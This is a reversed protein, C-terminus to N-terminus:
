PCTEQQILERLVNLFREEITEPTFTPESSQFPEYCMHDPSELAHGLSALNYIRESYVKGCDPCERDLKLESGYSDTFVHFRLGDIEAIALDGENFSVPFDEAVNLYRKIQHRLTSESSERQRAKHAVRSEENKREEDDHAQKARERLDTEPATLPSMQQEGSPKIEENVKM